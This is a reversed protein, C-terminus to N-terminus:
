EVIIRGDSVPNIPQGTKGLQRFHDILADRVLYGINERKVPNKLFGADDGGNAVYDSMVVTYTENPQLTRGNVFSVSSVQGEHIKARLGGMVLENKQAFHNMMKQLMDGKLTLIVVQNDFPMVEFISGTTINGEPLNNRIGGYNLHSCDLPKGYRQSTQQLLADTLLDNLPADPKGKEIRGTSHALVENMSKDLGQRYPKLFNTVSSDPRATTSDVGIRNATRNTLHYGGPNCAWLGLLALVLVYKKM